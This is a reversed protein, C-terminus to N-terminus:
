DSMVSIGSDGKMVTIANYCNCCRTHHHYWSHYSCNNLGWSCDSLFNNNSHILELWSVELLLRGSLPLDFSVKWIAISTTISSNATATATSDMLSCRCYQRYYEDAVTADPLLMGASDTTAATNNCCFHRYCMLPILIMVTADIITTVYCQLPPPSLVFTDFDDCCRCYSANWWPSCFLM